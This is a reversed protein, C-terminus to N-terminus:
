EQDVQQRDWPIETMWAPQGLGPVDPPTAHDLFWALRSRARMEAADGPARALAQALARMLGPVELGDGQYSSLMSTITPTNAALADRLAELSAAARELREPDVSVYDNSMQPRVM